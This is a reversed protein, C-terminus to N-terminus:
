FFLFMEKANTCFFGCFFPLNVKVEFFSRGKKSMGQTFERYAPLMSTACLCKAQSLTFVHSMFATSERESAQGLLRQQLASTSAHQPERGTGLLGTTSNQRLSRKCIFARPRRRVPLPARARARGPPRRGVGRWGRLGALAGGEHCGTWARGLEGPAAAIEELVWAGHVAKM